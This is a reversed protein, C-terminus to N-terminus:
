KNIFKKSSEFDIVVKGIKKSIKNSTFSKFKEVSIGGAEIYINDRELKLFKNRSNSIIQLGQSQEKYFHTENDPYVSIVKDFNHIKLTNLAMSFYFPDIHPYLFNLIFLNDPKLKYSKIANLIGVKYDINELSQEINRKYFKIKKNSYKFNKEIKEDSSVIIINNIFKLKILKQILNNLLTKGKFKNLSYCTQSISPGRVPVIVCNKNNKNKNLINFNKQYIRNRSEFLLKKNKTM